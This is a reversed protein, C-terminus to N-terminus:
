MLQAESRSCTHPLSSVKAGKFLWNKKRSLGLRFCRVRLAQGWGGKSENPDCYEHYIFSKQPQAKGLLTPALSDGDTQNTPLHV